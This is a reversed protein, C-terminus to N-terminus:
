HSTGHCLIVELVIGCRTIFDIRVGLAAIEDVVSVGGLESLQM